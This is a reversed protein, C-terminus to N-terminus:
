PWLARRGCCSPVDVLRPAKSALRSPLGEKKMQEQVAEIDLTRPTLHNIHASPFSVVDTLIPHKTKLVCYDEYCTSAISHWRFTKIAERVFESTETSIFGGQQEGHDLLELLRKTFICRTSLLSLARERNEPTLLEPRLFTTFVRFPNKGLEEPTVPRFATAHMPLGAVSLDYYGAPRLGLLGFLRRVTSLEEPTGLGIAGHRELQSRAGELDKCIAAREEPSLRSIVQENISVLDGYLPVEAEYM